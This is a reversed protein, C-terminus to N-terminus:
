IKILNEKLQDRLKQAEREKDTMKGMFKGLSIGPYPDVARKTLAYGYIGPFGKIGDGFSAKYHFKRALFRYYKRLGRTIVWSKGWRM